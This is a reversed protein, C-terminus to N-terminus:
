PCPEPQQPQEAKKSNDWEILILRLTSSFNRLGRTQSEREVIAIERATLVVSKHMAKDKYPLKM